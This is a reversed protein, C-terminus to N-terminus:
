IAGNEYNWVLDYKSPGFLVMEKMYAGSSWGFKGVATEIEKLWKQYAPDLVDEPKLGARKGHYGYTMLVLTQLGSNSTNPATHGLKVFGWEGPAGRGIWGEPLAAADQSTRGDVRLAEREGA